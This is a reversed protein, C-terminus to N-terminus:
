SERMLRLTGRGVIHLTLSLVFCVASSLGILFLNQSAPQLVFGIWPAIGGLAMLAIAIGNLYTATLKARENEVLNM